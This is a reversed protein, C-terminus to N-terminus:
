EDLEIEYLAYKGHRNSNFIIRRGDPSWHPSSDDAASRTLRFVGSGDSNMLYIEWNGHTNTVFAIRNGDPSMVPQGDWRSRFTLQKEVADDDLDIGIIEANGASDIDRAFVIKRGDPSWSPSFIVGNKADVQRQDSGDVNMVYANYSNSNGHRNTAFAIRKGDPSFTPNIDRAANQTLNTLGSGDANILCIETNTDLKNSFVIRSGDPSFRPGLDTNETKVLKRHHKSAIDYVILEGSRDPSPTISQFVIQRGDPSYSPFQLDNEQYALVLRPKYVEASMVYIDDNGDQDSIFAFRTGDPSWSGPGGTENGKWDTLHRIDGGETNMLYVDSNENERDSNFAITTGDPSFAPHNDWAPSNTLRRVNSGDSNMLYIEANGDRTSAFAVQSGDPSFNPDADFGPHNTINEAKGTEFTYIFLESNEESIKRQFIVKKSDITWDTNGFLPMAIENSGDANAIYTTSKDGPKSFIVKSGDPSFYFYNRPHAVDVESSGTGDANMVMNKGVKDKGVRFFRIRGDETWKPWFEDAPDDTLRVVRAESEAATKEPKWFYFGLVLLALITLATASLLVPRFGFFADSSLANRESDDFAEQVPAIFRYGLKPVTEIFDNGNEQVGLNKRLTSVARSINGEEVFSDAWLAKLLMDKTVLEGSHEVLLLLLDLVRPTLRVRSDNKILLRERPYLKYGSFEFHHLKHGNNNM